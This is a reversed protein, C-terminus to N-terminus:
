ANELWARVSRVAEYTPGCHRRLFAKDVDAGCGAAALARAGDFDVLALRLHLSDTPMGFHSGPLAFVGVDRLLSAALDVDSHVGRVRLLQRLPEFNVFLYFGGAPEVVEVGGRRL